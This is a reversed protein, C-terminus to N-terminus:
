PKTPKRRSWTRMLEEYDKGVIVTAEVLAADHRLHLLRPTGLVKALDGAIRDTEARSLVLTREYNWSPANGFEIVDFGLGTLYDRFGEAAGPKGCGNLVQIQGTNPVFSAEADPKRCAGLSLAALIAPFISIPALLNGPDAGSLNSLPVAM